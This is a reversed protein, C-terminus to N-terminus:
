TKTILVHTSMMEHPCARSVAGSLLRHLRSGASPLSGGDAAQPSAGPPRAFCSIM